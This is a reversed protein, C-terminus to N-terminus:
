MGSRRTTLELIHNNELASRKCASPPATTTSPSFSAFAAPSKGRERSLVTGCLCKSLSIPQVRFLTASKLGRLRVNQIIPKTTSRTFTLLFCARPPMPLSYESQGFSPLFLASFPSGRLIRNM